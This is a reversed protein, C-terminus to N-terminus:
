ECLQGAPHGESESADVFHEAEQRNELVASSRAGESSQVRIICKQFPPFKQASKAM